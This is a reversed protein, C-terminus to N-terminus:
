VAAKDRYSGKTFIWARIKQLMGVDAGLFNLKIQWRRLDKLREIRVVRGRPSPIGIALFISSGIELVSHLTPEQSSVVTVGLESISVVDADIILSTHKFESDAPIHLEPMEAPAKSNLLNEVKKNFILVDIPKVIYDDVGAQIGKEIDRKERRGSLMAISLQEFRKNKRLTRVLDFGSCYPLNADALLLDFYGTNLLEIAGLAEEATAVVHDASSLVATTFRLIDKDDDVVLIRGM